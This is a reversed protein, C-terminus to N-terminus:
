KDALKKLIEGHREISSKIMDERRKKDKLIFSKIAETDTKLKNAHKYNQIYEWEEQTFSILKKVNQANNMRTM